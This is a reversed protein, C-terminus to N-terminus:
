LVNGRVPIKIEPQELLNTKVLVTGTFKGTEAKDSLMIKLKDDGNREITILDLDSTIDTIKFASDAKLTVVQERAKGKPSAFMYVARPTTQIPNAVKVYVNVKTEPMSEGNTKFTIFGTHTPKDAPIDSGSFRVKISMNKDDNRVTELNLFEINSSVGSVELKDLRETVVEISREIQEGRKVNVLTLYTPKVTIEQIIKGKLKIQLSPNKEDNSVVTITKHIDGTFRTSDFTIPIKGAEGPAYNKKTLEATTCGCSPKVESITLEAKGTNIFEFEYAVKKGKEIEGFDHESHKFEIKPGEAAVSISLSLLLVSIIMKM